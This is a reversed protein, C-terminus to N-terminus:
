LDVILLVTAFIPPGDAVAGGVGGGIPGETESSSEEARRREGGSINGGEAFPTTVRSNSLQLVSARCDRREEVGLQYDDSLEGKHKKWPFGGNIKYKIPRCTALIIFTSM